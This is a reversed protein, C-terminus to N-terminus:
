DAVSGEFCFGDMSAEMKDMLVLYAKVFTRTASTSPGKSVTFFAVENYSYVLSFWHVLKTVTM